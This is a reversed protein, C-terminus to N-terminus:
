GQLSAQLLLVLGTDGSSQDEVAEVRVRVRVGAAIAALRIAKLEHIPKRRRGGGAGGGHLQLELQLDLHHHLFSGASTPIAAGSCRWAMSRRVAMGERSSSMAVAVTVSGQQAM